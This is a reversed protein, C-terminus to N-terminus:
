PRSQIGVIWAEISTTLIPLPVSGNELIKDHFARIDFKPGLEKEARARLARIHLEGVKYSLAQGPWAIYRDIETRVEHLSLATNSAMFELAQERSWGKAHIGTDVVLRAARWMEYTLRGFDAYPDTYFGMEIGLHECYLAWGEGFASIYLDRRFEPVAEMEQALSGQLHHGPAAEHLTLSELTYFPRKDLAYTNVWYTGAQLSGRAAPVYRGGTYVPALYDPVPEVGYPLRPLRGFFAPLKGDAKKALFAARELLEQPTKAYFRPDTRLFQLFDAFSGAFGVRDIVAQMEARIRAVEKLGLEHVQDASMELTTFYRVRQEYYARGNKMESAGVSERAVPLYERSLFEDFGRYSPVVAELIAARGAALLRPRENEPVGPPFSTFPGFFRSKEASDVIHTKITVDYGALVVKPLVMGARMGDRLLDINQAFYRPVARLRAIYSEYDAVSEFRMGEGLRAIETHFGSDSNIPFRQQGVEWEEVRSQLQWHFVDYNVLDQGTLAQRDIARLQELFGRTREAQAALEILSLDPLRSDADRRGAYTAALPDDALRQEWERSILAALRAAEGGTDAAAPTALVLPPLVLAMLALFSLPSCPSKLRPM